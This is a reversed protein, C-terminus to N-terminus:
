KQTPGVQGPVNPGFLQLERVTPHRKLRFPRWEHSHSQDVSRHPGLLFGADRRQTHTHTKSILPVVGSLDAGPVTEMVNVDILEVLEVVHEDVGELHPPRYTAPVHRTHLPHTAPIFRTYRPYTSYRSHRWSM